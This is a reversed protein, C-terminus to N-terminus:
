WFREIAGFPLVLRDEERDAVRRAVPAVDHLRLDELLVVDGLKEVSVEDADLDVAFLAGIEVFRVHSREDRHRAAASPRHRQEERGPQSREESRRIERVLAEDGGGAFRGCFERRCSGIDFTSGVLHRAVHRLPGRRLRGLARRGDGCGVHPADGSRREGADVHLPPAKASIGLKRRRHPPCEQEVCRAFPPIGRNGVGDSLREVRHGDPPNAVGDAAPEVAVGGVSPPLRWM